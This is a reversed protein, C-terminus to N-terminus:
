QQAIYSQVLRRVVQGATPKSGRAGDGILNGGLEGVNEGLEGEKEGIVMRPCLCCVGVFRVSMKGEGVKWVGLGMGVSDGILREGLEGEKEGTTNNPWMCDGGVSWERMSVEGVGDECVLAVM